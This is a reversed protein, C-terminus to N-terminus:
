DIGTKKGIFLVWRQEFYIEGKEMYPHFGTQRGNELEAKMLGEIKSRVNDPTDTLALWASLEVSIRVALMAPITDLCIVTKVFPAISRGCVCTGAAAELVNDNKTLNMSQVVYDLYAQKSFNLNQTEFNQAQKIFSKQIDNLNKPNM